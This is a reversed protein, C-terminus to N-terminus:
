RIEYKYAVCSTKSLPSVLSGGSPSIHGIAAVKAGDRPTEGGLARQIMLAEGIKRPIAIFYGLGLSAILGGGFAAALTAPVVPFRRYVLVGIAAAVLLYLALAHLCSKKM